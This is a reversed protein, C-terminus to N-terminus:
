TQKTSRDSRHPTYLERKLLSALVHNLIQGMQSIIAKKLTKLQDEKKKIARDYRSATLQIYFKDLPTPSIM